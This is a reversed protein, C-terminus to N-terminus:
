TKSKHTKTQQNTPKHTGPLWPVDSLVNWFAESLSHTCPSAPKRVNPKTRSAPQEALAKNENKKTVTTTIQQHPLKKISTGAVAQDSPWRLTM